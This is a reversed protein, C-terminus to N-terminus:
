DIDALMTGFHDHLATLSDQMGRYVDRYTPFHKNLKKCCEEVVGFHMAVLTEMDPEAVRELMRHRENIMAVLQLPLQATPATYPSPAASTPNLSTSVRAPAKAPWSAVIPRESAILPGIHPLRMLENGTHHLREEIEAITTPSSNGARDNPPPPVPAVVRRKTSM